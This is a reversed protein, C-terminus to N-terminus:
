GSGLSKTRIWQKKWFRSSCIQYAIKKLIAGKKSDNSYTVTKDKRYPAVQPVQKKEEDIWEQTVVGGGVAEIQELLDFYYQQAQEAIEPEDDM